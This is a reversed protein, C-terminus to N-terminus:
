NVHIEGKQKTSQKVPHHHRRRHPHRRHHTLKLTPNTLHVKNPILSSSSQLHIFLHPHLILTLFDM